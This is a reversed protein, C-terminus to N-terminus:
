SATKVTTFEHTRGNERRRKIFGHSHGGQVWLNRLQTHRRVGNFGFGTHQTPQQQVVAGPIPHTIKQHVGVKVTMLVTQYVCGDAGQDIGGLRSVHDRHVFLQLGQAFRLLHTPQGVQIRQRLIHWAGAIDPAVSFDHSLSGDQALQHRGTIVDGGGCEVGLAPRNVLNQILGLLLDEVDTFFARAHLLAKLGHVGQHHVQQVSDGLHGVVGVVDRTHGGAKVIQVAHGRAQLRAVQHHQRRTRGHTFRSKGDVNGFVHREVFPQGHSHKGHFHTCGLQRYTNHARNTTHVLTM